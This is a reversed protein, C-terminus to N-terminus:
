NVSGAAEVESVGVESLVVFFNGTVLSEWWAAAAALRRTRWLEGLAGAVV